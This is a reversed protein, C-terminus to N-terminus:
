PKTKEAKLKVMADTLQLVQEAMESIAVAASAAVEKKHL